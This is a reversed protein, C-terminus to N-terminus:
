RGPFLAEDGFGYVVIDQGNMLQAVADGSVDVVERLACPLQVAL